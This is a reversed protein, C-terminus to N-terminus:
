ISLFYWRVIEVSYFTQEESFVQTSYQDQEITLDLTWPSEVPIKEGADNASNM